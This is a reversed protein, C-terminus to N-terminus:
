LAFIADTRPLPTAGRSIESVSLCPLTTTVVRTCARLALTAAMIFRLMSDELAPESVDANPMVTVSTLLAVTWSATTSAEPCNFTSPGVAESARASACACCRDSMVTAMTSPTASRTTTIVTITQTQQTRPWQPEGLRAVEKGLNRCLPRPRMTLARFQANVSCLMTEGEERKLASSNASCPMM